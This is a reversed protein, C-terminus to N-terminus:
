ARLCFELPFDQKDVPGTALHRVRGGCSLSRPSAAHLTVGMKRCATTQRTAMSPWAWTPREFYRRRWVSGTRGLCSRCRCALCCIPNHIQPCPLINPHVFSGARDQGVCRKDSPRTQLSYSRKKRGDIHSQGLLAPTKKKNIFSHNVGM